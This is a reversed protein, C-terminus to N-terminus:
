LKVTVWMYFGTRDQEALCTRINKRILIGFKETGAAQEVVLNKCM